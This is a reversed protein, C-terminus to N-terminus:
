TAAGSDLVDAALARTIPRGMALAHADLSAVLTQAAGLSRDMRMVLYPILTPQVVIQRDAFLKVLVASLLADDPAALRTIATAQMRSFLDPLRLGWDRPPTAATLMLSGAQTVLNHLHFLAEEAVVLDADDVAVAQPLATLDAAALDAGALVIGGAAQAWMHALHTKGAGRPGLILMKGLPWAAWSDVAELAQANTPSVFFDNRAHAAHGPLDFALQTM